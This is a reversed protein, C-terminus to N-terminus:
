KERAITNNGNTTVRNVIKETNTKSIGNLITTIRSYQTGAMVNTITTGATAVGYAWGAVNMGPRM